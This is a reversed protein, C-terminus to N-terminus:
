GVWGGKGLLPVFTFTGIEDVQELETENKRYLCVKQERRNGVPVILRGGEVLQEALHEPVAPSGASFAIADFPGHESLGESGDGFDIRLNRIGLKEIKKRSSHVLSLIREIGFVQKCLCSAVAVLYGCGSGVELLKEENQLDLATLYSYVTKPQSLTQGMGIPLSVDSYAQYWLAQEIFIHRPIKGLASLVRKDPQPLESRIREIMESRPKAFDNM